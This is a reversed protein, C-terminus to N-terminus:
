VSNLVWAIFSETSINTPSIYPGVSSNAAQETDVGVYKTEPFEPLSVQDPDRAVGLSRLVSPGYRVRAFAWDEIRDDLVLVVVIRAPVYEIAEFQDNV